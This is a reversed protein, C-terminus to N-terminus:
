FILYFENLRQCTLLATDLTATEKGLTVFKHLIRQMGELAAHQDSRGLPPLLM